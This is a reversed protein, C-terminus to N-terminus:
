EIRCQRRRTTKNGHIVNKTEEDIIYDIMSSNLIISLTDKDNDQEFSYLKAYNVAIRDMVNIQKNEIYQKIQSSHQEFLEPTEYPRITEFNRETWANQLKVFLNKVWSLFNADNFYKNRM